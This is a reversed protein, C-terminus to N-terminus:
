LAGGVTVATFNLYARARLAAEPVLYPGTVDRIDAVPNGAEVRAATKTIAKVIRALDMADIPNERSGALVSVGISTQGSIISADTTGDDRVVILKVPFTGATAEPEKRDVTVGTCLTRIRQSNSMDAAVRALESRYFKTWFLEQDADLV